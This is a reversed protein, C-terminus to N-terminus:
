ETPSGFDGLHDSGLAKQEQLAAAHVPPHASWVPQRVLGADQRLLPGADPTKKAYNVDCATAIAVTYLLRRWRM